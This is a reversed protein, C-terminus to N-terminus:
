AKEVGIEVTGDGTVGISFLEYETKRSYDKNVYVRDRPGINFRVIYIEGVDSVEINRPNMRGFLDFAVQKVSERDTARKESLRRDGISRAEERIIRKLRSKTIRM